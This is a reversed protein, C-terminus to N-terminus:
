IEDLKITFKRMMNGLYRGLTKLSPSKMKSLAGILEKWSKKKPEIVDDDDEASPCKVLTIDSRKVNEQERNYEMATLLVVQLFPYIQCLVLWIDIM